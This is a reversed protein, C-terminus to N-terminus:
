ESFEQDEIEEEYERRRYKRRVYFGFVSVIIYAILLILSYIWFRTLLFDLLLLVLILNLYFRRFGNRGSYQEVLEVDNRSALEKAQRTYTSNTVVMACDCEYYRMGGVVQQVAHVGVPKSYYKCQVAYKKRHKYAIVDVGYDNSAKTVSVKKFGHQRLYTAVRYEYKQGDM